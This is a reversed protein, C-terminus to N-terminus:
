YVNPTEEEELNAVIEDLVVSNTKKFDDLLTKTIFQADELTAPRREKESISFLRQTITRDIVRIFDDLEKLADSYATPEFEEQKVIAKKEKKFKSIGLQFITQSLCFFFIMPVFSFLLKFLSHYAKETFFSPEGFLEVAGSVLCCWFSFYFGIMAIAMSLGILGGGVFDNLYDKVKM